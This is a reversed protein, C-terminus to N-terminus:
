KMSATRLFDDHYHAYISPMLMKINKNFLEEKRLFGFVRCASLNVNSILGMRDNEGSLYIIPSGDQLSNGTGGM